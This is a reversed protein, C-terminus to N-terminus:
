ELVIRDIIQVAFRPLVAQRRVRAPECLLRYLWELHARRWAAPARKVRGALVDFTGGVGQVVKVRLEPVWREMWAEQKPSGLAVFLIDAGSANIRCVLAAMDEDKVFGHEAGAIVLDPFQAKLARAASANAERCGGFLFVTYGKRAAVGCLAPMLDSGAVQEVPDAQKGRAAVVVGIGDPILLGARMLQSLLAPDRRARMVKEPNVAIVTDTANSELMAEVARLAQEKTVCDVPVGLIEVRKPKV